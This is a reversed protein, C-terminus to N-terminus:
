RLRWSSTHKLLLSCSKERLPQQSLEHGVDVIIDELWAFKKRLYQYRNNQKDEDPLINPKGFLM